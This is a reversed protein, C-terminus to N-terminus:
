AKRINDMTASGLHWKQKWIGVKGTVEACAVRKKPTLRIPVRVCVCACVLVYLSFNHSSSIKSKKGTYWRDATLLSTFIRTKYTHKTIEDKKVSDGFIVLIFPLKKNLWPINAGKCLFMFSVIFINISCFFAVIGRLKHMIFTIQNAGELLRWRSGCVNCRDLLTLPVSVYGNM